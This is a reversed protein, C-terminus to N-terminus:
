GNELVVKIEISVVTGDSMTEIYERLEDLTMENIDTNM